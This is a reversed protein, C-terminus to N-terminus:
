FKLDIGFTITRANPYSLTNSGGSRGGGVEPDLSPFRTITFLNTAQTYLRLNNLGVANVWKQPLSYGFNLDRLRIYSGDLVNYDMNNNGFTSTPYGFV